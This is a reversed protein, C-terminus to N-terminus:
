TEVANAADLLAELTSAALRYFGVPTNPYWQITWLEGTGLCREREGPGAWSDEDEVAGAISSYLDKYTNHELYLGCKHAPLKM